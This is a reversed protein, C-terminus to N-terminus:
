AEGLCGADTRADDVAQDIGARKQGLWQGVPVREREVKRALACGEGLLLSFGRARQKFIGAATEGHAQEVADCARALRFDIELRNRSRQRAPALHEHQHGLDREGALEDGAALLAEAGTGGLPM